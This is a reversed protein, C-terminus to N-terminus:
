FPLNGEEDEEEPPPPPPPPKRRSVKAPPPPPASFTEEEREENEGEETLLSGWKYSGTRADKRLIEIKKRLLDLKAQCASALISGEEFRKIMNELTMSGDEMEGVLTELRELAEEFGMSDIKKLLEKDVKEAM